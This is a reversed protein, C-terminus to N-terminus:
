STKEKPHHAPAGPLASMLETIVVAVDGGGSRDLAAVEVLTSGGDQRARVWVRRPRIFLSGLLGILALVVGALAIEKGPTQSIQIKNWRQVGDFSVSGLGNPLKTTQGPRLDLRYPAGNKKTLMTTRSKDLAYVSQSGGSDMGLDGTYVLLSVLPDLTDGFASFYSGTQKSFAVTPYFEGELGIQTPEAGPAKVVGFSAFSQDTPLFVTPGSYVEDGNGDRVTIVPAYGHGILFVETDGITLPHNVKLDYTQEPATPSTRYRLTSDFERAMGARPGSTLFDVNFDDIDFSFPEMDSAKFLSGPVFDDYQSLNNSFGGGVVVIVGGKYGFLGGLAFGVLVVLVSLHFLLNGAERLYGKEASVAGDHEVVRYRRRRLADAAPGLVDVPALDTDYTAHDPLRTLNRPAAPPKARLARAYVFTRPVICGVLSLMLLLYIASFWPSDYVAFLGLREYIPTLQPHAAQWRSTKLSDVGSQPIISGPIAALALLLLLVLATRMSTVQRWTWRAMERATLEGSRRRDRDADREIADAHGQPRESQPEDRPEEREESM